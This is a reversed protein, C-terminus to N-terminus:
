YEEDMYDRSLNDIKFFLKLQKGTYGDFNDNLPGGCCVLLSNIERLADQCANKTKKLRAIELQQDAILLKLEDV